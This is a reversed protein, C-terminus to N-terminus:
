VCSDRTIFKARELLETYTIIDIGRLEQRFLEFTDRKIDADRKNGANDFEHHSGIVLITKANRTRAQLKETGARNYHENGQASALWEAKQEAIQSVASIFESSFEWTGARGGKSAKFIPTDPRKIEVLVTYDKFTQLFDIVPKNRNDTGGGGLTSERDFPRLVRYDLGYGFVWHEKEFFDQWLVETWDNQSLHTEFVELGQKRGLLINVEEASLSSQLGGWIAKRRENSMKKIVHLVNNDPADVIVKSGTQTSLDQVQFRAKNSLDIFELRNLFELLRDFEDSRFTFEDKDVAEIWDASRPKFTQITLRRIKKNDQTVTATVQTKRKEGTLRLCLSGEIEGLKLSDCNELVMHVNRKGETDQAGWQFLKSVYTKGEQRLKFYEYDTEDSM